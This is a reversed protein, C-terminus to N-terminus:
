AVDAGAVPQGTVVKVESGLTRGRRSAIRRVAGSCRSLPLFAGTTTRWRWSRIRFM